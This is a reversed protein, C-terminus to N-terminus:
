GALGHLPRQGPGWASAAVGGAALASLHLDVLSRGPYSLHRGPLHAGGGRGAVLVPLDTMLHDNSESIESGFVVFTNDLLTGTGEEHSALARLFHAFREIEWTEITVLDAIRGPMGGHHSLTHHDTTIGLFDYTTSSAGHGQTFATVRTLDCAFALAMLESMHDTRVEIEANLGPDDAGVCAPETGFQTIRLELERVSTLYRDLRPRDDYGLAPLLLRAEAAVVDLISTRTAVRRAREEATANTDFGAFLRNFLFAPSIIVPLPTSADIWSINQSYACSYAPWCSENARTSEVGVQLSPFPTSAGLRAAARQDASMGLKVENRTALMGTLFGGTGVSHPAENFPAEVNRLGSIVSFQDRLDALPALTSPLTFGAGLQTPVFSPMQFGNGCFWWM